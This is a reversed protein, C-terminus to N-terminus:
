VKPGDSAGFASWLLASLGCVTVFAAWIWFGFPHEIRRFVEGHFNFFGARVDSVLGLLVFIGALGAVVRAVLRQRPNLTNVAHM